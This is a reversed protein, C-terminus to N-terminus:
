SELVKAVAARVLLPGRGDRWIAPTERADAVPEGNVLVNSSGFYRLPDRPGWQLRDWELWDPPLGLERLADRIAERASDIYLSTGDYVLEVRLKPVPVKIDNM